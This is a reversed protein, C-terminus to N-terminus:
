GTRYRVRLLERRAYRVFPIDLGDIWAMPSTPRTTTSTSTGARPSCCTAAGCRSRTATSTPGCARVRSSSGSRPRPTGTRPRSRARGLYQIAGVADADRVATGPLGPNALAIARREGGRGVPVLEGAREALPLLTSWRWLTPVPGARRSTPMLGGIQTWLPKMHAAEFAAYLEDLQAQEQTSTAASRQPVTSTM